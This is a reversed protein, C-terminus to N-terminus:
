LPRKKIEYLSFFAKEYCNFLLAMLNNELLLKMQEAHYKLKELSTEIIQSTSFNLSGLFIM